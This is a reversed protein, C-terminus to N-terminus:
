VGQKGRVIEGQETIADQEKLSYKLTLQLVINNYALEAKESHAVALARRLKILDLAYKDEISLHEAQTPIDQINVSKSM